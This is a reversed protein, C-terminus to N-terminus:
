QAERYQEYAKLAPESWRVGHDAGFAYILEILMSFEEKSMKSTHSGLYITGGYVGETVRQHKRLSATFIAKWDEPSLLMRRGDVPWLVQRSVDTLMPWLKRNQSNSRNPINYNCKPCLM